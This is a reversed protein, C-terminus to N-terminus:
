PRRPHYVGFEKPITIKAKMNQYLDGYAVARLLYRCSRTAYRLNRRLIQEGIDRNRLVFLCVLLLHCRLAGDEKNKGDICISECPSCMHIMDLKRMAFAYRNRPMKRSFISGLRARCISVTTVYIVCLYKMSAGFYASRKHKISNKRKNQM